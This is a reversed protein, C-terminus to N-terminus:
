ATQGHQSQCDERRRCHSPVSCEEKASSAFTVTFMKDRIARQGRSNRGLPGLALARDTM